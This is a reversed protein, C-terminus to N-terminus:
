NHQKLGNPSVQETQLPKRAEFNLWGWAHWEIATPNFGPLFSAYRAVFPHCSDFLKTVSIVFIVSIACNQAGDNSDFGGPTSVFIGIFFSGLNRGGRRFRAMTHNFGSM